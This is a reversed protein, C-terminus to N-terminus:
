VKGPECSVFRGYSGDQCDFCTVQWLYGLLSESSTKHCSAGVVQGRGEWGKNSEREKRGFVRGRKSDRVFGAGRREQM